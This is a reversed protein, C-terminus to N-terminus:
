NNLAGQDVWSQFLQIDADSLPGAPPMGGNVLLDTVDSLSAKVNAYTDVRVNMNQVTAGHCSTCNTKLLPQIQTKFSVTAAADGKGTATDVAMTLADPLTVSREAGGADSYRVDNAGADSAAATNGGAPESGSTATVGGNPKVGGAASNGGSSTAGGTVRSGGASTVGGAASSGGNSTTGRDSTSASDVPTGGAPTAGGTTGGGSPTSNSAAMTGGGSTTRGAASPGGTGGNGSAGLAEASQTSTCAGVLWVACLGVVLLAPSRAEDKIM